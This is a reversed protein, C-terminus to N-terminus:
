NTGGAREELLLQDRVLAARDEASMTTVLAVLSEQVTADVDVEIRVPAFNGVIKAILTEIKLIAHVDKRPQAHQEALLQWLRELQAARYYSQNQEHHARWESLVSYRLEEAIRTSIGLRDVCAKVVAERGMGVSLLQSVFERRRIREQEVPLMGVARTVRAEERPSAFKGSRQDRPAKKPGTPQKKPPPKYAEAQKPRRMITLAERFAGVMM